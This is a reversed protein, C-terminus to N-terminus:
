DRAPAAEDVRGPVVLGLLRNMAEPNPVRYRTVHKMALVQLDGNLAYFWRGGSEGAFAIDLRAEWNPDGDSASVQKGRWQENFRELAAADLSTTQGTVEHRVTVAVVEQASLGSM